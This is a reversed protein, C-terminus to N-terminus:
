RLVTVCTEDRSVVDGKVPWFVLRYCVLARPAIGATAKAFPDFGIAEQEECWLNFAKVHLPNARASCTWAWDRTGAIPAMQVDVPVDVAHAPTGPGALAAAAAPPLLLKRM